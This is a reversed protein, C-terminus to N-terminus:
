HTLLSSTCYYLTSRNWLVEREWDICKQLSCYGSKELATRTTAWQDTKWWVERWTSQPLNKISFQYHLSGEAVTWKASEGPSLRPAACKTLHLFHGARHSLMECENKQCRQRRICHLPTASLCAFPVTQNYFGELAMVQVCLAHCAGRCTNQDHRSCCSGQLYAWSMHM